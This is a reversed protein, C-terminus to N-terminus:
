IRNDLALNVMRDAKRNQERPIHTYTVPLDIQAEKEKAQFYLERLGANKIKYLGNLQSCALQSDM